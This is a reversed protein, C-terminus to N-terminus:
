SLVMFSLTSAHFSRCNGNGLKAGLEGAAIRRDDDVHPALRGEDARAFHDGSRQAAIRLLCGCPHFRQGARAADHDIAGVTAFDTLARCRRETFAADGCAIQFTADLCPLGRISLEVVLRGIAGRAPDGTLTRLDVPDGTGPQDGTEHVPSRLKM